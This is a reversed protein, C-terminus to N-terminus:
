FSHFFDLWCFPYGHNHQQKYKWFPAYLGAIQLMKRLWQQSPLIQVLYRSRLQVTCVYMPIQSLIFLLQQKHKQMESPFPISICTAWQVPVRINTMSLLISRFDGPWATTWVAERLVPCSSRWWAALQKLTCPSSKQMGVQLFSDEFWLLDTLALGFKFM